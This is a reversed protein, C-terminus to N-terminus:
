SLRRVGRRTLKEETPIKYGSIFCENCIVNKSPENWGSAMSFINRFEKKGNSQFPGIKTALPQISDQISKLTALQM